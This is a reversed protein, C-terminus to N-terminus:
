KNMLFGSDNLMMRNGKILLATGKNYHPLWVDEFYRRSIAEDKKTMALHNYIIVGGPSLIEDLDNLFDPDTFAEPIKDDVFIDVCIIDYQESTMYVFAQADAQIIQMDSKLDPLVYKSALRVVAPDIEVCTYEYKKGFTKELMYPISALGLGLVLVPSREPWDLKMAAFTDSFNDYKDAYSYIANPTLLQYRGKAVFIHLQENYDSTITEIHQDYIYSLWKKWWPLTM